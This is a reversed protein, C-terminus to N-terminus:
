SCNRRRRAAWCWVRRAASPHLHCSDFMCLTSPIPPCLLCQNCSLRTMLLVAKHLAQLGVCFHLIIRQSCIHRHRQLSVKGICTRLTTQLCYVRGTLCWVQLSMSGTGAQAGGWVCVFCTLLARVFTAM